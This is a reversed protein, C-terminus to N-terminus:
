PCTGDLKQGITAFEGDLFAQPDEAKAAQELETAIATVQERQAADTGAAGAARLEQSMAAFTDRLGQEGGGTANGALRVAGDTLIKYVATCVYAPQGVSASPAPAVSFPAPIADPAIDVECGSLSATVAAGAALAAILATPAPTRRRHPVLNRKM